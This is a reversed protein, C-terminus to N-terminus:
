EVATLAPHEVGSARRFPDLELFTDFMIRKMEIPVGIAEGDGYDSFIFGGQPTTWQALLQAAESRVAAADKTPLTHQIDCLSTFCIKGALATGVEEIGLAKPQQLNIDDLGAEILLPIAANVKGCSHLRSDWGWSHVADYIRKYRPLFFERWLAPSVFLAQQTGWDDSGGYAHIRDGFREGLHNIKAVDYAVIRDALTAMAEPELYLGELVREFGMLTHMREFLVMFQGVSFYKQQSENEALAQEVREYIDPDHPDPFPYEAVRAYETLPHGIVQGMNAMETKGWRCGWEDVGTGTRTRESASDLGAGTIDSFGLSGMEVPLRDPTEFRIAARVVERPTQPM